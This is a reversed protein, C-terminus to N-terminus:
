SATAGTSASSATRRSSSTSAAACASRAKAARVSWAGADGSRRMARRPRSSAATARSSRSSTASRRSSSASPPWGDPALTFFIGGGKTDLFVTPITLTIERENQWGLLEGPVGYVASIKTGPAPVITLRLDHALESVMTDLQEGFVDHADTEDRLFFLNGGRVSGIRTALEGGFQVGVGITTLGIGARSAATAIGIFSRADTAGVNPREDTFLMVRTRGDFHPATERALAFGARLGDEM